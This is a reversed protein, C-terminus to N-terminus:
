KLVGKDEHQHTLQNDEVVKEVMNNKFLDTNQTYYKITTEDDIIKVGMGMPLVCYVEVMRNDINIHTTETSGFGSKFTREYRQKRINKEFGFKELEKLEINDKIKLM